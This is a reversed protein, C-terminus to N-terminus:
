LIPIKINTPNKAWDEFRYEFKWCIDTLIRFGSKSIGKEFFIEFSNIKNALEKNIIINYNDYKFIM